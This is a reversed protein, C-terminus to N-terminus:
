VSEEITVGAGSDVRTLTANAGNIEQEIKQLEETIVKNQVPNESTPDLVSDITGVGVNEGQTINTATIDTMGETVLITALVVYYSTSSSGGDAGIATRIDSETPATPNNAAVEGEVTILGCAGPNDVVTTTGEPPNNVYAVIKDIRQGLSPAETIM